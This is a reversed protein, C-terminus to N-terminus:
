INSLIRQYAQHLAVSSTIAPNDQLFSIGLINAPITEANDTHPNRLAELTVQLTSIDEKLKQRSELLERQARAVARQNDINMQNEQGLQAAPTLRRIRIPRGTTTTTTEPITPTTTRITNAVGTLDIIGIAGAIPNIPNIITNPIIRNQITIPSTNTPNAINTNTTADTRPINTTTTEQQPPIFRQLINEQAVAFRHSSRDLAQLLTNPPPIYVCNNHRGKRNKFCALVSENHQEDPYVLIKGFPTSEICTLGDLNVNLLSDCYVGIPINLIAKITSGEIFHETGGKRRCRILAYILQIGYPKPDNSM